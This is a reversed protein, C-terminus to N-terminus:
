RVRNRAANRRSGECAIHLNPRTGGKVEMSMSIFSNRPQSRNFRQAGTRLANNIEGKVVTLAESRAYKAQEITFWQDAPAEHRCMPCWVADDKFLKSWDDENVKFLFLCEESPCQKDIYGKEDADIRISISRGNLGELHKILDEFM